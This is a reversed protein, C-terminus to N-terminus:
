HLRSSRAPLAVLWGADGPLHSRARQPQQARAPQRHGVHTFAMRVAHETLAGPLYRLKVKHTITVDQQGAALAERASVGEVSAWVSTSNSWALVTEGLANTTGSAIQVTVRERLEGPRIM